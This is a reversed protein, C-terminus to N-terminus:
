QLLRSLIASPKEVIAKRLTAKKPGNVFEADHPSTVFMISDQGLDRAAQKSLREIFRKDNRNVRERESESESFFVRNTTIQINEDCVLRERDDVYCGAVKPTISVGGFHNSIRKAYRELTSVSIKQRANNEDINSYKPLFIRYEQEKVQINRTLLALGTDPKATNKARAYIRQRRTTEV